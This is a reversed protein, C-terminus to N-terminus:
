EEVVGAGVVFDGGHGLSLCIKGWLYMPSPPPPLPPPLPSGPDDDDSEESRSGVRFYTCLTSFCVFLVRPSEPVLVSM